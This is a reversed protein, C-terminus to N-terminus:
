GPNYWIPSTWAREQILVPLDPNPPTGNRAADWTSWRCSPNELVRVYYAARQNPDFDPDHWLTKLDAAGTGDTVSCDSIDVSSGNDPCRHTEADPVAAGSCAADYVMEQAQNDADTWVKVVQLRQLPYSDPDRMAWALIGPAEGTGGSIDAGQPVGGAYAESVLNPDDLMEAKYGFGAFMRARIRPGSTGFTEKRRIADFIAERTNEDAWVGALGSASYHSAALLRRMSPKMVGKPTAVDIADAEAVAWTKAGDPPVSHRAEPSAGDQPFKGWFKEEIYPGAGIHTDSSGIFGFKFPNFGGSNQLTLGRGIATRAYDGTHPSSKAASGIFTEYLEFNAWEDNPSLTPHTESTGKIQTIEMVPENRSRTVAYDATLEGGKYTELAFMEGNSANSNHPISMVDRGDARQQDMWAWLDEPNTSDLTSFLRDPAAGRFIVNRHLNAAAPIESDAVPTMATFEYGAFTTFKGPEYFKDAAEIAKHWASDIVDRDYIEEIEEGSVITAGVNQFLVAPNTADPGFADKAFQTQSLASGPTAMAPFIGLYEGHDTVAYFDLPKNLQIDYGADIHIKEGRAFRYADEPTAKVNSIFADFSRGTHVHLDGFLAVRGAPDPAAETAPEAAPAAAVAAEAEPVQEKATGCSALVLVSVGALALHKM